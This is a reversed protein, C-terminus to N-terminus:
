QCIIPNKKNNVYIQSELQIIEKRMRKLRDFKVQSFNDIDMAEDPVTVDQSLASPLNFILTFLLIQPLLKILKTM